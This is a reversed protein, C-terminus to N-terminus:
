AKEFRLAIWENREKKDVFNLGFGEVFQIMEQEDIDLLGSLILQANPKLANIYFPMDAKLINKNINALVLDFKEDPISEAGGKIFSVEVNNREANEVANEYSWEDIDIGLCSKAGRMKSLIALIGTGTGMDLVSKQDLDLNLLYEVMLHTTEHHGTGFSMKPQIVIEYPADPHPEHFEARIYCADNINIPSFNSEWEKNWNVPEIETREYVTEATDLEAVQDKVFEEDDYDKLIYAKLGTATEEFSEFEAQSLLAILIESFPQPPVINFNYEIYNM